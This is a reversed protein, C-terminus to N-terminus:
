RFLAKVSERVGDRRKRLESLPDNGSVPNEKNKEAERQAGAAIGEMAAM